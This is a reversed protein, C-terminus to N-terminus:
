VALTVALAESVSLTVAASLAVAAKTWLFAEALAVALTEALAVALAVSLAVLFAVSLAVGSENLGVGGGVGAVVGGSVDGGVGGGVSSGVGGGSEDLDWITLVLEVEEVEIVSLHEVLTVPSSVLLGSWVVVVARNGLGIVPLTGLLANLGPFASASSHALSSSPAGTEVTAFSGWEWGLSWTDGGGVSRNYLSVVM